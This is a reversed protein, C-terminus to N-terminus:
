IGVYATIWGILRAYTPQPLWLNGILVQKALGYDHWSKSNRQIGHRSLESFVDERKMRSLRKVHDKVRKRESEDTLKKAETMGVLVMEEITHYDRHECSHRHRIHANLHNEIDVAPEDTLCRQQIEHQITDFPLSTSHKSASNM